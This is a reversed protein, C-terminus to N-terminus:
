FEKIKWCKTYFERVKLFHVGVKRPKGTSTPVVALQDECSFSLLRRGEGGYVCRVWLIPDENISEFRLKLKCIGEWSM